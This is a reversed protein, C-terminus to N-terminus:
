LLSFQVFRSHVHWNGKPPKLQEPYPLHGNSKKRVRGATGVMVEKEGLAKGSLDPLRVIVPM